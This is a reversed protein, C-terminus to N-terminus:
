ESSKFGCGLQDIFKFYISFSAGSGSVIPDFGSLCEEYLIESGSSEGFRFSREVECYFIKKEALAPKLTKIFCNAQDVIAVQALKRIEALQQVPTKGDSSKPSIGFAVQRKLGGVRKMFFEDLNSTCISLFKLRELLPTRSDEAELFVRRNFNLWGIERNTFEVESSRPHEIVKPKRGRRAKPLSMKPNSETRSKKTMTVSREKGKYHRMEEIM